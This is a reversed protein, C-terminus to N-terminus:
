KRREYHENHCLWSGTTETIISHKKHCYYIAGIKGQEKFKANECGSCKFTQDSWSFEKKMQTEEHSEVEAPKKKPKWDCEKDNTIIIEGKDNRVWKQTQPDRVYGRMFFCKLSGWEVPCPRKCPERVPYLPTNELNEFTMQGDCSYADLKM